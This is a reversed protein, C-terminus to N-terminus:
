VPFDQRPYVSWSIVFIPLNRVFIGIYCQGRYVIRGGQFAGMCGCSMVVGFIVKCTNFFKGSIYNSWPISFPSTDSYWQGGTQSTQILRNQLYFCFIETTNYSIGFWDFLLDVTCHYKKGPKVLKSKPLLLNM